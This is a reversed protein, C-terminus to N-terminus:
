TYSPTRAAGFSMTGARNKLKVLGYLFLSFLVFALYAWELPLRHHLPTTLVGYAMEVHIWYVFLSSRGFERMRWGDSVANRGYAVSVLVLLLGLRVFFFTPSSTWFNTGEYIPPLFSAAYGGAAMALGAGALGVNMRWEQVPAVRDLLVGVACGAFLFGSWPLLTFTTAAGAPRLYWEIPDPLVGLLTSARVIPTLMAVAVTAAAFLLARSSRRASVRWLLAAAMMSMGLVNLIDVKLLTRAPGGSIVWSQLRFLFALGFIQWGRRLARAAAEQESQGRRTRASVALVLAVGALFLFVPAGGVGGVFTIWHYAARDHDEIRTWSDIVHGQIMVLVGLGRLWDLYGKRDAAPAFAATV